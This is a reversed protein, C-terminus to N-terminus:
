MMPIVKDRLFRVRSRLQVANEDTAEARVPYVSELSTNQTVANAWADMLDCYLELALRANCAKDTVLYASPLDGVVVWLQSDVGRTAMSFEFLFVAVVGGIGFGLYAHSIDPCWKHSKLYRTAEDAMQRLLATDEADDGKIQSLPVLKTVDPQVM